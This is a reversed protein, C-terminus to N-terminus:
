AGPRVEHSVEREGQYVVVEAASPEEELIWAAHAIADGDSRLMMAEFLVTTGEVTFPFFTYLAGFM